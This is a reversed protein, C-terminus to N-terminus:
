VSLEGGINKQIEDPQGNMMIDRMLGKSSLIIDGVNQLTNMFMVTIVQYNRVPMGSESLLVANMASNTRWKQKSFTEFSKSTILNSESSFAQLLGILKTIIIDDALPSGVYVYSKGMLAYGKLTYEMGQISERIASTKASLTTESIKIADKDFLIIV